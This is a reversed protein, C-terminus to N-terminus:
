EVVNIDQSILQTYINKARHSGTEFRKDGKIEVAYNSFSSGYSARKQAFAIMMAQDGTIPRNLLSMMLQHDSYLPKKITDKNTPTFQHHFHESIFSRAYGNDSFYNNNVQGTSSCACLSLCFLISISKKLASLNLNSCNLFYM